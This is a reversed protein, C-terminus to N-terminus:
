IARAVYSQASHRRAFDDFLFVNDGVAVGMACLLGNCITPGDDFAAPRTDFVANRYFGDQWDVGAQSERLAQVYRRDAVRSSCVCCLDFCRGASSWDDAM